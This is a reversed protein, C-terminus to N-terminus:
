LTSSIYRRFHREYFLQLRPVMCVEWYTSDFAIEEVFMDHVTYVVFFCLKRGTVGLQGQIQFYYKSNHKLCPKGTVPNRSLYPFLANADIEKNYAKYPCKIEILSDAGIVGDPSAALFPYQVNVFLGCPEVKCGTNEEFAQVAAKEFKVGRLVAANHLVPPSFIQRCLKTLDRKYTAKLIDGFTSATLRWQRHEFWKACRSQLRTEEEITAAEEPSVQLHWILM